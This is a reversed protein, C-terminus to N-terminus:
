HVAQVVYTHNGMVVSFGVEHGMLQVGLPSQPSLALVKRGEIEVKPLAASLFLLMGNAEVLSGLAIRSHVKHGDMKNLIDQQARIEALKANLKEQELQMMSLATEHKDGASSKADNRADESLSEIMDLFVDARDQLLRKYHALIQEKLTM